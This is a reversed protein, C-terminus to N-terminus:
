PHAKAVEGWPALWVIKLGPIGPTGSGRALTALDTQATAPFAFVIALLAMAPLRFKM